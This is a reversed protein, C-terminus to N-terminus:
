SSALSWKQMEAKEQLYNITQRVMSSIVFAVVATYLWLWFVQEKRVHCVYCYFVTLTALEIINCFLIQSESANQTFPHIAHFLLMEFFYVWGQKTSLLTIWSKFKSEGDGYICLITRVLWAILSLQWPMKLAFLTLAIHLATLGFGDQITSLVKRRVGNSIFRYRVCCFNDAYPTSSLMIHIMYYLLHYSSDTLTKAFLNFAVIKSRLLIQFYMFLRPLYENNILSYMRLDLTRQKDSLTAMVSQTIAIQSRSKYLKWQILGISLYDFLHMAPTVLFIMLKRMLTENSYRHRNNNCVVVARWLVWMYILVGVLVAGDRLYGIATVVDDYFTYGYFLVYAATWLLQYMRISPRTIQLLRRKENDAIKHTDKRGWELELEGLLEEYLSESLRFIQKYRTNQSITGLAKILQEDLWLGYNCQLLAQTAELPHANEGVVPVGLPPKEGLVIGMQKVQTLLSIHRQRIVSLPETTWTWSLWRLLEQRVNLIRILAIRDALNGVTLQPTRAGAAAAAAAKEFWKRCPHLEEAALNLSIDCLDSPGM